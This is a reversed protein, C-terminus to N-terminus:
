PPLGPDAALTALVGKLWTGEQEDDLERIRRRTWQDMAERSGVALVAGSIAFRGDALLCLAGPRDLRERLREVVPQGAVVTPASPDGDAPTWPGVSFLPPMGRGALGPRPPPGVPGRHWRETLATLEGISERRALVQLRDGARIRTAGRPALAQDGRIITTVLAERPLGLDRVPAGVVADGENVGFELVDAGLRQITGVDIPTSPLAPRGTTAGLRRALPEFTAGQLVTSFLVAFFVINFFELSKPIPALVAFTALVMPVAGRLGAWGLVIRESVSYGAGSTAVLVALPRAVFVLVLALATGELAV